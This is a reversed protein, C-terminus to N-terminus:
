ERPGLMTKPQYIRAFRPRILFFAAMQVGFIASNLILSSVVTATSTGAAQEASQAAAQRALLLMAAAAGALRPSAPM